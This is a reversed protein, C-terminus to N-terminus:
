RGRHRGTLKWLKQTMFRYGQCAGGNNLWWVNHLPRCRCCSARGRCSFVALGARSGAYLNFMLIHVAPRTLCRARPTSTHNIESSSRLVPTRGENHQQTVTFCSVKPTHLDIEKPPLSWTSSSLPTLTKESLPPGFTTLPQLDPAAKTFLLSASGHLM